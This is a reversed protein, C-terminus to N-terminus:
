TSRQTKRGKKGKQGKAEKGAMLRWDKKAVPPPSAEMASKALAAKTKPDM